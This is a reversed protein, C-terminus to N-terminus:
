QLLDAFEDDQADQVFQRENVSRPMSDPPDGFVQRTFNSFSQMQPPEVPPEVPPPVPDPASNDSGDSCGALLALCFVSTLMSTALTKM